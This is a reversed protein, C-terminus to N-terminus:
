PGTQGFLCKKVNIYYVKFDFYDKRGKLLTFVKVAFM